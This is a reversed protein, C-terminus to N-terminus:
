PNMKADLFGLVFVLPANWNIAIENSAYSALQDSYCRAPFEAPYVAGNGRDQRDVNPGGVLFGPLPGPVADGGSLRHHPNVPSKYGFGTLFCYGTANKGFIYDTTEVLDDRYKPNGSFQWAMAFVMAADLIDSNSGWQFVTLPIHYPIYGMKEDLSDAIDTINKRLEEREPATIYQKDLALTYYGLNSLYLRWNETPEFRFPKRFRIYEQHYFEEGTVRFLEAAAWFFEDEMEKDSYTGTHVDPPNVFVKDPNAQAWTYARKAAQLMKNAYAPNVASFVRSAQAM